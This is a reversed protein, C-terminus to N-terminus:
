LCDEFTIVVAKPEDHNDIDAVELGTEDSVLDKLVSIDDKTQIEYGYLFLLNPYTEFDRSTAWEVKTINSDEPDHEMEIAKIATKEDKFTVYLWKHLGDLLITEEEFDGLGIDEDELYLLYFDKEKRIDAVTAKITRKWPGEEPSALEKSQKKSQKKKEENLVKSKLVTRGSHGSSM